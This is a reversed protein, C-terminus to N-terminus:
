EHVIEARPEGDVFRILAVSCGEGVSCSASGPNVVLVSGNRQIRPRHTHGVVVVGAEEAALLARVHEPGHVVLFRVGGIDCRVHDPLGTLAPESDMNGRVALVPALCELGDLVWARGVDGAHLILEVGSLVPEVWQPLVGHTDSIVGM